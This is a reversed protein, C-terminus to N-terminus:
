NLFPPAPACDRPAQVKGRPQRHITGIPSRSSVIRKSGSSPMALRSSCRSRRIDCASPCPKLNSRWAARLSSCAAVKPLRRGSIEPRPDDRVAEHRLVIGGIEAEEVLRGGCRDDFGPDHNGVIWTWDLKSTFETLLARAEDPLRECGFRDHFSDGLCYLRKAG